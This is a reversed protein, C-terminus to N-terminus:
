ASSRPDTTSAAALEAYLRRERESLDPPIVIRVKAYLDGATGRPNPLGLEPLRLRRGSSSGAPVDLRVPGAPTQVRVPAGLAAEWPTVPLEVMIDRGRVRYRPHPSLRIVLYLDGAPGGDTGPGGQGALRVRQGDAVGAPIDVTYQRPRGAPGPLKITRRGGRYADEVAVAIEAQSDAGARGQPGSGDRDGTQDRSGAQDAPGAPERSDAQDRPGPQNFPPQRRQPGPRQRGPAAAPGSGRRQFLSGLWDAAAAQSADYDRRRRPDSLVRYAEAIRKFREEAGSERNVDPHHLRALTRYARRVEERRANRPVGLDAYYDRTDVTTM